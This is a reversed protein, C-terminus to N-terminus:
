HVHIISCYGLDFPKSTQISSHTEVCVSEIRCGYLYASGSVGFMLATQSGSTGEKSVTFVLESCLNYLDM